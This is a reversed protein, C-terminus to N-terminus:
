DVMIQTSTNSLDILSSTRLMSTLPTAIKSFSQFFSRYFDLSYRFPLVVQNSIVYGLFCIEEQYFRRGSFYRCSHLDELCAGGRHICQQPHLVADGPGPQYLGVFFNELLTLSKGAQRLAYSREHSNFSDHSNHGNQGNFGIHEPSNYPGRYDLFLWFSGYKSLKIFGSEDVLKIAYHNIRTHEPLKSALNSTFVDAFNAYKALFKTSAEMAILGVIQFRRSPHVDLPSSSLSTASLLVVYVVFTECKPDPAATAFKKKKIM